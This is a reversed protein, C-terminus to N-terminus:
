NQVYQVGEITWKMVGESFTKTIKNIRFGPAQLSTIAQPLPLAEGKISFPIEGWDKLSLKQAPDGPLRTTSPERVFKLSLNLSEAVSLMDLRRKAAGPVAEDIGDSTVVPLTLTATTGDDSIVAHPEIELLHQIWGDDKKGWSIVLSKGSCDMQNLSWNGPWLTTVHFQAEECANVFDAARPILKWAHVPKLKKPGNEMARAQEEQFKLLDKEAVHRLYLHTGVLGIVVVTLAALYPIFKRYDTKVPNLRWWEHYKIKRKKTRPLFSDFDRETANSSIGWSRPCIVSSDNMTTYDTLLRARVADETGLFDGDPLIVGDHIAVYLWQKPNVQTACLVNFGTGEMDLTKSVVAAASYMKNTAGEEVSGFGVQPAGGTRQVFLDFRMQEALGRIESIHTTKLGVSLQQWMLGAVFTKGKELEFIQHSLESM